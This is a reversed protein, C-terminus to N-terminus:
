ARNHRGYDITAIDAVGVGHMWAHAEEATIERYPGCLWARWAMAAMHAM